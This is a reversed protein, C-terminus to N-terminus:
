MVFQAKNEYTLELYLRIEHLIYNKGREGLRSLLDSSGPSCGLIQLQILYYFFHNCMGGEFNVVM